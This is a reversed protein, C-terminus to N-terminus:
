SLQYLADRIQEKEFPKTAYMNYLKRDDEDKPTEGSISVAYMPKLMNEKEYERFRKLVELGNIKPMQNDFYAISFPNGDKQANVLMNLAEEGDEAVSIKCFEGDLLTKILSVSIKDDDAILVKPAKEVSLFAYLEKIGCSYQSIIECSHHFNEKTISFLSEEVVLCKINKAITEEITAADTKSQFSILHTVDDECDTSSAIGVIQKKDVGMRTLYKAINNASLKNSIDMLIAIKMDQTNVPNFAVTNNVSDIPIDFFFDSGKDPESELKLTGGLDTVYASSIALGLGTGGYNLATTDEAQKFAEFIEKQKEKPIGIGTDKVSVSLRNDQKNYIVSFDISKSTPTFKYANNILNMIIRKLKAPETIIEKPMRPDIFVNYTLKKSYMNSSFMEAISSFLKISDIKEKESKERERQSSVRDLISTTLSNILGASEKANFLYQKLRPDNIQEELLDLFGYLTNAPTRIDHVINSMFALAEDSSESNSNERSEQLAKANKVAEFAARKSPQSRRDNKLDVEIKAQPHMKGIIDIIYPSIAKLLELDDETFMKIKKVSSYATAIGIFKENSILPIIIKSKIKIEDPNDVSAVFDKESTLYNYIGEKKTMFCTYLVGQKGHMSIERVGTSRERLLQHNEEDYFWISSFETDMLGSIFREAIENIDTNTEAADADQTVSHLRDELLKTNLKSLKEGSNNNKRPTRPQINM